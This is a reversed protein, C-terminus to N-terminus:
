KKTFLGTSNQNRVYVDRKNKIYEYILENNFSYDGVIPVLKKALVLILNAFQTEKELEVKNMLWMKELYDLHEAEYTVEECHSQIVSKVNDVQINKQTEKQSFFDCIKNMTELSFTNQKQTFFTDLSNFIEKKKDGSLELASKFEQLSVNGDGNVDLYNMFATAEDESVLLKDVLETTSIKGNLCIQNYLKEAGVKNARAKLHQLTEVLSPNMTRESVVKSTISSVVSANSTLIIDCDELILNCNPDNM